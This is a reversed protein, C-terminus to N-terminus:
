GANKGLLIKRKEPKIAPRYYIATNGIIRVLVSNTRSAIEAAIEDKEDKFDVFKIKVLERKELLGDLATIFNEVLGNKGIWLVPKVTNAERSLMYRERSGIERM